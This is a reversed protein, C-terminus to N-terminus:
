CKLENFAEQEEEKWNWLAKGTLTTLPKIIDSYGEIFRQYYNAFGLFSQLEKKTWPIKWKDIAQTKAHDMQIQGYSIIHGLYEV